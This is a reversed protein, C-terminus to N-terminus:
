EVPLDCEFSTSEGVYYRVIRTNANVVFYLYLKDDAQMTGIPLERASRIVSDRNINIVQTGDAKELVYGIAHWRQGQNDEISPQQLSAAAARSAGYLSHAQDRAIRVRVMRQHGPRWISNVRLSAATSGTAKAVEKSGSMVADDQISLGQTFNKSVMSPLADTAEIDVPMNGARIGERPGIQGDGTPPQEAAQDAPDPAAVVAPTGVLAALKAPESVAAPLPLRLQRAFLFTPEADAPVVFVWTIPQKQDSSNASLRDSKIATMETRGTALKRSFALPQHLEVGKQGYKDRRTALRMQVPSLYLTGQDFVGPAAQWVTEVAVVKNTAVKAPTGLADLAAADLGPPPAKHIAVQTVSVSPPTAVLSANPDYHRQLRFHAAQDVLEPKYQSLPSGTSFSGSSLMSFFGAAQHDVPLWLRQGTDVTRGTAEVGWPQYGGVSIGLPLYSLGIMTLGSILIASLVGCFGGAILNLIQHFHVNKGVFYDMPLRLVIMALVFPGLLGVGWAYEPMRGFLFGLVLPEWVAFAIAAAAITVILHLFASFFGQLGWWYAMALVFVIILANALM